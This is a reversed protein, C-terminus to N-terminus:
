NISTAAIIADEQFCVQRCTKHTYTHYHHISLHKAIPITCWFNGGPMNDDTPKTKARM